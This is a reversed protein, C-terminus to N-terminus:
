SNIAQKQGREWKFQVALFSSKVVKKPLLYRNLRKLQRATRYRCLDNFSEWWVDNNYADKTEIQKLKFYFIEFPM